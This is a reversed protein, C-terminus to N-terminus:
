FQGQRPYTTHKMSTNLVEQLSVHIIESIQHHYISSCLRLKGLNIKAEKRDPAHDAFNEFYNKLWDICYRQALSFPAIATSVMDDDVPTEFLEGNSM